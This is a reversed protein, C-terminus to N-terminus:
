LSVWVTIDMRMNQQRKCQLFQKDEQSMEEKDEYRREPFDTNYQQVLLQEIEAVSVRNVSYHPTNEM